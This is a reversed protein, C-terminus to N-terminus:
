ESRLVPRAVYETAVTVIPADAPVHTRRAIVRVYALHRDQDAEVAAIEVGNDPAVLRHWDAWARTSDALTDAVTVDVLGTRQWHRRWWAPAHLFGELDPTWWDRLHDPVDGSMEQALGAGAIALFGGPKLFRALMGLFRADTGYYPFSDISVVADFFDDAFPLARADARLPFVGDAVGADAIRRQNESASFWLDTAWVQVGFERHLFISSLARGCGLDLVRMGPQLLLSECVWETLWLPNAGGSAGAVLWAPNYASSRPFRRHALM